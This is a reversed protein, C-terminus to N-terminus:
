LIVGVHISGAPEAEPSVGLWSGARGCGTLSKTQIISGRELGGLASGAYLVYEEGVQWPSVVTLFSPHRPLPCSGDMGEVGGRKLQSFATCGVICLHVAELGACRLCWRKRHMVLPEEQVGRRCM